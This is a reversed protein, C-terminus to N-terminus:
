KILLFKRSEAQGKGSSLRYLYVGSPLSSFDYNVEYTGSEFDRSFLKRVLVGRLDYIDLSYHGKMRIEFTMRTSANFPNPYNQSLTFQMDGSSGTNSVSTLQSYKVIMVDSPSGSSGTVYLSGNEDITMGAAGDDTQQGSCVKTWIVAGSSNLKLTVIDSGTGANICSGTLYIYGDADVEMRAIGDNSNATGNNTFTWIMNGATDYNILLYDYGSSDTLVSGSVYVTNDRWAKVQSPSAIAPYTEAWLLSGSSNYKVTTMQRVFNSDMCQGTVYVNGIEDVDVSVAFDASDGPGNYYAVWQKVGLTDYKITGFDSFSGSRNLYGTAYINNRSDVTLDYAWGGLECESTASWLLNGSTDYKLVVFDYYFFPGIGSGLCIVNGRSDIELDVAVNRPFYGSYTRSWILNGASGYKLLVILEFSTLADLSGTVYINGYIDAKASTGEDFLDIGGDYAASWLLVGSPSYKLTLIDLLSATGTTGAVIVNGNIDTTVTRSFDDFNLPGNYTAIWEQTVQAQLVPIFAILFFTFFKLLMGTENKM